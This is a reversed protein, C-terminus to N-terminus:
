PLPLLFIVGIIDGVALNRRHGMIRGLVIVIRAHPLFILPFHGRLMDDTCHCGLCIISIEGVGSGVYESTFGM